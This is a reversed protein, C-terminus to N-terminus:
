KSHDFHKLLRYGAWQILQVFLILLVVTVIMITIDFRQYGYNIAVSGLGGGGVAGAMATYGILNILMLTIGHILSPLAEPFIVKVIIQLVSAGMSQAAEILGLCVASFASEAIRAVFPIASITLPVIAAATGISTGAIFRTLPIIAVMLIIFPVSRGVNILFNIVLNIIKNELYKGPRTFFVLVGLPIGILVSILGSFFTMELTELAANTILIIEANTM